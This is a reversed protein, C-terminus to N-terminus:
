VIPIRNLFASLGTKLLFFRSAKLNGSNLNSFRTIEQFYSSQEIAGAIIFLVAVALVGKNSFGAVAEDLTIAGMLLFAAVVLTFVKLPDYIEKILLFLMTTIIIITLLIDM